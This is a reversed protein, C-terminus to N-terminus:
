RERVHEKRYVSYLRGDLEGRGVEKFGAKEFARISAKNSLIIKGELISIGHEQLAKTSTMKLLTSGIGKGRYSEAVSLSVMASTDGTRDLRIQGIPVGRQELIWLHTDTSAVKGRFWKAHEVYTIRATSFSNRRVFPDNAWNWLLEEDDKTAVRLRLSDMTRREKSGGLLQEVTRAAGMGDIVHQGNRTMSERREPGLALYRIEDALREARLESVPGLSRAVGAVDVSSAVLQQNEALVLLLSPLGMYALEWCTSGAGSIAMDAWDMLARMDRVNSLVEVENPADSAVSHLEDLHRYDSGVVVIVSLGTLGSSAIAGLVRTAANSPDAGGMTVLIRRASDPTKRLPQGASHFERRLLVYSPGLMLRTNEGCQSYYSENAHLNQNHIATAFYRGAHGYDDLVLLNADGSDLVEQYSSGFHYGDLAVWAADLSEAARKTFAADEAANDVIKNQLLDVGEATLRAALGPSLGEHILHAVGGSDQWAQALALCRMVHGSGIASGADARILLSGLTSM